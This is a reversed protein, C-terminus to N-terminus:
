YKVVLARHKDRFDHIGYSGVVETVEETALSASGLALQEPPGMSLWVPWQKLLEVALRLGQPWSCRSGSLRARLLQDRPSGSCCDRLHGGAAPAVPGRVCVRAAAGPSAGFLAGWGLRLSEEGRGLSKTLPM